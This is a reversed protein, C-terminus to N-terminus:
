RRYELAVAGSRRVDSVAWARPLSFRVKYVTLGGDKGLTPDDLREVRDLGPDDREGRSLLYKVNFLQWLRYEEGSDLLDHTRRLEETIQDATCHGGLGVVAEYVMTRQATKRMTM